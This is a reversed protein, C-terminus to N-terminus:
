RKDRRTRAVTISAFKQAYCRHYDVMALQAACKKVGRSGVIITLEGVEQRRSVIRPTTESVIAGIVNWTNTGIPRFVTKHKCHLVSAM